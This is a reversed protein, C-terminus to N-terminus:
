RAPASGGKSDAVGLFRVPQNGQFHDPTLIYTGYLTTTWVSQAAHEDAGSFVYTLGGVVGGVIGFAMKLPFYVLNSLGAAFQLGASSPNGGEAGGSSSVSAGEQSWALPAMTVTCLALLMCVVVLKFRFAVCLRASSAYMNM